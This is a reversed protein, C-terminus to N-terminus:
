EMTSPNEELLLDKPLVLHATHDVVCVRSNGDNLYYCGLIARTIVDWGPERPRFMSRFTKKARSKMSVVIDGRSNTESIIIHLDRIFRSTVDMFRSGIWGTYKKWIGKSMKWAGFSVTNESSIHRSIVGDKLDTIVFDPLFDSCLSPDIEKVTPISQVFPTKDFVLKCMGDLDALFGAHYTIIFSWMAGVLARYRHQSGGLISYLSSAGCGMPDFGGRLSGVCLFTRKLLVTPDSISCYSSEREPDGLFHFVGIKNKDLVPPVVQFVLDTYYPQDDKGIQTFEPLVSLGLEM